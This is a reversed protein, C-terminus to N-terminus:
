RSNGEQIHATKPFLWVQPIPSRGPAPHERLAIPRLSLAALGRVSFCAMAEVVAVNHELDCKTLHWGRNAL